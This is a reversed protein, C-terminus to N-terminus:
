PRNQTATLTQADFTVHRSDTRPTAEPSTTATARTATWTGLALTIALLLWPLPPMRGSRPLAGKSTGASTPSTPKSPGRQPSTLPASNSTSANTPTSADTSPTSGDTAVGMTLAALQM